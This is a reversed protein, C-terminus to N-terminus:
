RRESSPAGPGRPGPGGGALPPAPGQDAAGRSPCRPRAPRGRPRVPPAPRGGCWRHGGRRRRRVAGRCAAVGTSGSGGPWRGGGACGVHSAATTCGDAPQGPRMAVIPASSASVGARSSRGSAVGSRLGRALGTRSLTCRPMRREKPCSPVLPFSAPLVGRVPVGNRGWPLTVRRIWPSRGEMTIPPM